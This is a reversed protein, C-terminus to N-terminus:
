NLKKRLIYIQSSYTAEKARWNSKLGTMVGKLMNGNRYKESLMSVYFADFIMPRTEVLEFNYRDFLSIIDKQTFHYLHIPLDFAAWYEKYHKADYSDMNPVAVVLTGEPKLLETIRLVDKKLHYVHELVHWMTIVDFSEKELSYLSQQDLLDVDNVSKALSRADSDPELGTVKWGAKKAQKLFHGTGAGIDLVSKEKSLSNILSVKRRLSYWRVWHYIRNIVGKKSSSHSVYSESKYYSGISTEDPIPSTFHFGCSKCCVISFAEKSVSYDISNMFLEQDTSDCIPCLAVNNM